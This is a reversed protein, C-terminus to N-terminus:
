SLGHELGEDTLVFTKRAGEESEEERLFNSMLLDNLVPIPLEIQSSKLPGALGVDGGNPYKLYATDRKLTGRPAAYELAVHLGHKAMLQLFETSGTVVM